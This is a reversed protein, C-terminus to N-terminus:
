ASRTTTRARAFRALRPFYQNDICPVTAGCWRDREDKLLAPLEMWWAERINAIAYAGQSLPFHATRNDIESALKMQRFCDPDVTPYRFYMRAQAIRELQQRLKADGTLEAMDRNFKLITEGYTGVWGLERAVAGLAHDPFVEHRIAAFKAMTRTTASGRPYVWPKTSIVCRRNNRCRKKRRVLELGRNATYINQDVIMSQNTYFRRGNKRNWDVSARLIITWAERRKLRKTKATTSADKIAPEELPERRRWDPVFLFIRRCKSKRM